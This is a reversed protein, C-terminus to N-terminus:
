SIGFIPDSETYHTEPKTGFPAHRAVASTGFDNWIGGVIKFDNLFTRDSKYLDIFGLLLPQITLGKDRVIQGRPTVYKDSFEVNLLLNIKASQTEPQLVSKSLDKSYDAASATTSLCAGALLSCLIHFPRTKVKPTSPM